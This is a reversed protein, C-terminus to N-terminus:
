VERKFSGIEHIKLLPVVFHDHFFVLCPTIFLPVYFYVFERHERRECPLRSRVHTNGDVVATEAVLPPMVVPLPPVPFLAFFFTNAPLLLEVSM